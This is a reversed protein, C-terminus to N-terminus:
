LTVSPNSISTTALYEFLESKREVESLDKHHKDLVAKRVNFGFISSLLTLVTTAAIQCKELCVIMSKRILRFREKM